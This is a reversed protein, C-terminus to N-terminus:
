AMCLNRCSFILSRVENTLSFPPSRTNAPSGVLCDFGHLTLSLGELGKPMLRSDFRALRGYIRLLLVSYCGAVLEHISLQRLSPAQRTDYNSLRRQVCELWGVRLLCDFGDFTTQSLGHLPKPM